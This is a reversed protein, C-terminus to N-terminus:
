IKAYHMKQYQTTEKRYCYPSKQFERRFATSFNNSDCYGVQVSIQSVPLATEKLLQSAKNLRAERLWKFPTVGFYAKFEKNLKNRNTCLKRSM